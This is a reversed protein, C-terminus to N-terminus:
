MKVYWSGNTVGHKKILGKDQMLKLARKIKGEHEDVNAHIYKLDVRDVEEFLKYIKVAAIPLDAIIEEENITRDSKFVNEDIYHNASSTEQQNIKYELRVKQKELIKTFFNIWDTYDEANSKFTEQTKRLTQYYESKNDEIAAELSSYVVYSYGSKLLLLNTLARSLRGNGDQFPHITLFHVVFVAIVILPHYVRKELNDNTWDILEQMLKQTSSEAESSNKFLTSHLQKIYDETFSITEYDDFISNLIETYSAAEEDSLKNGEIRNSSGVSEITAVKKLYNLIEPSMQKIAKWEGRFEEIVSIRNLIENNIKAKFNIM